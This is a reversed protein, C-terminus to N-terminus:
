EVVQKRYGRMGTLAQRFEAVHENSFVFHNGIRALPRIKRLKQLHQIVHLPVGLQAAIQGSSYLESM